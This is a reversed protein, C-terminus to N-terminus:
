RAYTQGLLTWTLHDKPNKKLRAEYQEIVKATPLLHKYPEFPKDPRVKIKGDEPDKAGAPPPPYLALAALSVGLARWCDRTAVTSRRGEPFTWHGIVLSWHGTQDNTM